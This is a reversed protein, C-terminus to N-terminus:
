WEEPEISAALEDLLPDRESQRRDEYVRAKLIMRAIKASPREPIIGFTKLSMQQALEDCNLSEVKIVTGFKYTIM